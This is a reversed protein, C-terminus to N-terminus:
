PGKSQWSVFSRGWGRENGWGRVEQRSGRRLAAEEAEDWWGRRALWSRFRAVPDRARWARMEESTRYRSSYCPLSPPPPPACNSPWLYCLLPM